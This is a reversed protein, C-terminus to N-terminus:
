KVTLYFGQVRSEARLKLTIRLKTHHEDRNPLPQRIRLEPQDKSVKVATVRLERRTLDISKWTFYIMFTHSM